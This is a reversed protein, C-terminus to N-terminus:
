KKNKAPTSQPGGCHAKVKSEAEEFGDLNFKVTKEGFLLTPFRFLMKKETGIYQRIANGPFALKMQTELSIDMKFSKADVSGARLTFSSSRNMADEMNFGQEHWFKYVLKGKSGCGVIFSTKSDDDANLSAFGNPKDTVEDKGLQYEWGNAASASLAFSSLLLCVIKKM